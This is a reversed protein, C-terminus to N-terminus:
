IGNEVINERVFDILKSKSLQANRIWIFALPAVALFAVVVFPGSHAVHLYM